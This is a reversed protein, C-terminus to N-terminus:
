AAILDYNDLLTQTGSIGATMLHHIISLYQDKGGITFPQVRSELFRLEIDKQKFNSSKYLDSGGIANVYMSAGLKVCMDMVREEGHLNEVKPMESSKRFTCRLDLLRALSRLLNANFTSVNCEDSDLMRLIIPFVEAFAPAHAYGATIKRKIADISNGTMYRQERIQTHLGIRKVPMTIWKPEDAIAILNRNIWGGKIYQVDDYFIFLDVARMLQFYGIYPFFYPQMIAVIM